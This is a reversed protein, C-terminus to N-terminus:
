ELHGVCNLKVVNWKGDEGLELYTVGTNGHSYKRIQGLPENNIHCLLCSLCGGHTVILCTKGVHKEAVEKFCERVRVLLEDFSEGNEPKYEHWEIGLRDIEKQSEGFPKGEHIGKDQERLRKDLILKAKKQFKLIEEATKSARVLDSSYCLDIKEDKLFGAVKRAQELGIESLRSDMWGQSIKKKNEETEGHRVLIIKM